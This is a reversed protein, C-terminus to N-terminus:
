SPEIDYGKDKRADRNIARKNSRFKLKTPKDNTIMFGQSTSIDKEQKQVAEPNNILEEFQKPYLARETNKRMERRADDDVNKMLAEVRSLTTTRTEELEQELSMKRNAPAKGKNTSARFPSPKLVPTYGKDPYIADIQQELMNVKLSAEELIQKALNENSLNDKNEM